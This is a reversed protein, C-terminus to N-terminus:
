KSRLVMRAGVLIALSLLEPSLHSHPVERNGIVFEHADATAVGCLAVLFANVRKM